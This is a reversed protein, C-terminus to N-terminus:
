SPLANKVAAALQKLSFPKPLFTFKEDEELNERFADEAYGSIFIIDIGERRKRLKKLLTPGDMEPMVVDSIVLDIKGDHSDVVDLAAKGSAAELVTYGRSQLARSAFARVADEDEVLLITGEGTLDAKAEPKAEEAEPQEDDRPYHRPLYISFTTGKGLKSEAFIYGGTQKVIGYVTSLGLGTGKGVEKTSFFPEYMKELVDPAMGTGTDTIECAVYDGPAMVDYGLNRSETESVNATKVTLLGGDPMADRANVALNIIVQEFQNIDVKVLGLDRGHETKLDINEGLLRSLLNGLDSLVDSLSLVEPRLTQRRSFALLQRVLNAARNANQKINMIDQFSPDTPRHRALLLDSFGIIATLVNNFDHAVGGALQGVAQMKQSQAFQEELSKQETTEVAYLIIAAEDAGAHARNPYLRITRAAGTQGNGPAPKGAHPLGIEVPEIDRRGSLANELGSELAALNDGGVVDKLSGGARAEGDFLNTFSANAHAILGQKDVEAIALPAKNFMRAFDVEPGNAGLADTRDLVLCRIAAIQGDPGVDTRSIVQVPMLAGDSDRLDVDFTGSQPGGGSADPTQLLDPAAEGVIDKLSLVGGTTKTLDIKLWEALTANIYQVKSAGDTSFFGAPAHDLYDITHQLQNFSNEQRGREDTIDAIRWLTETKNDGVDIVIVSIRLWTNVAERAGAAASGAPLRVEEERPKGDLASQALRYIPESIEPYATYLKEVSVLRKVHSTGTLDYYARNAYVVRGRKNTVLCADAFSDLVEAAFRSKATRRGFRIIGATMGLLALLGLFALGGLGLLVGPKFDTRLSYSLAAATVAALAALVVALGASGRQSPRDMAQKMAGQKLGIESM